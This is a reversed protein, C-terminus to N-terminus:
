ITQMQVSEILRHNVYGERELLHKEGLNRCDVITTNTSVVSLGGDVIIEVPVNTETVFIEAEKCSLAPGSNFDSSINPTTAALPVGIKKAISGFIGSAAYVLANDHNVAFREAEKSDLWTMRLTIEGPMLNNIISFSYDDTKFFAPIENKDSVVFLPQRSRDRDKAAFINAVGEENDARTVIMYWRITPVIIIGGRNLSDCCQQICNSDYEKIIKMM